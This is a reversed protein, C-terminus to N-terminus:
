TFAAFAALIASSAARLAMSTAGDGAGVAFSAGGLKLGSAESTTICVIRDLRQFSHWIQRPAPAGSAVTTM